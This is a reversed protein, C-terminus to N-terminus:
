LARALEIVANAIVWAGILVGAGILAYTLTAKARKLKEENGQATVFQFGALVVFIGAIPVGVRAALSVILQILGTFSDAGLPNDIKVANETQALAAGPLLYAYLIFGVRALRLISTKLTHVIITFFAM